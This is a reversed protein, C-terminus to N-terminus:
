KASDNECNLASKKANIREVHADWISPNKPTNNTNKSSSNSLDFKIADYLECFLRIMIILAFLAAVMPIAVIAAIALITLQIFKMAM